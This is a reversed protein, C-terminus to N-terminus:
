RAGNKMLFQWKIWMILVNVANKNLIGFEIYSFSSSLILLKQIKMETSGNM